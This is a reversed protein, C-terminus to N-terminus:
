DTVYAVRIPPICSGLFGIARMGCSSVTEADLEDRRVVHWICIRIM